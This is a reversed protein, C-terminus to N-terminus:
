TGFPSYAAPEGEALRVYAEGVADWQYRSSVRERMAGPRGPLGVIARLAAGLGEPDFFFGTEALLDRSFPGEIARM